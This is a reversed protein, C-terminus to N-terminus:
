EQLRRPRVTWWKPWRVKHPTRTLAIIQRQEMVSLRNEGFRELAAEVIWPELVLRATDRRRDQKRAIRLGEAVGSVSGPRVGVLVVAVPEPAQELPAIDRTRDLLALLDLAATEKGGLGDKLLMKLFAEEATVRRREGNEVITVKRGLVAEHPLDCDSRRPRGRPNGSLGKTFRSARPPSRYGVPQDEGDMALGERGDCTRRRMLSM